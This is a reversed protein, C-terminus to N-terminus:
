TVSFTQLHYRGEFGLRKAIAASALLEYNVRYRPIFGQRLAKSILESALQSGYGRGRHSSAMVITIDVIKSDDLIQAFRSVGILHGDVFAGYVVEDRFLLDLTDRDDDSVKLYFQDLVQSDSNFLEKIEVESSRPIAKFKNLQPLLYDFDDFVKQFRLALHEALNEKTLHGVYSKLGVLIEKGTFLDKFLYAYKGEYRDIYTGSTSVKFDSSNLEDLSM